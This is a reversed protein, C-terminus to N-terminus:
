FKPERALDMLFKGTRHRYSPNNYLRNLGSPHPIVCYNVRLGDPYEEFYEYWQGTFKRLQLCAPITSGLIVTPNRMMKIVRDRERKGAQNSWAGQEVVNARDFAELHEAESYPRVDMATAYDRVMQFLNAGASGAISPHLAKDPGGHPNSMGLLLPRM